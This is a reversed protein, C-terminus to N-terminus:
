AASGKRCRACHHPHMLNQSVHPFRCLATANRATSRCSLPLHYSGICLMGGAVMGAPSAAPSRGVPMETHRADVLLNSVPGTGDCADAGALLLLEATLLCAGARCDTCPHAGHLQARTGHARVTARQRLFKVNEHSFKGGVEVGIVTLERSMCIILTGAGSGWRRASIWWAFPHCAVVGPLDGSYLACTLWRLGM